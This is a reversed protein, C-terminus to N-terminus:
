KKSDKYFLYLMGIFGIFFGIILFLPSKQFHKDLKYGLFCFIALVGCFEVGASMWRMAGHHHWGDKEPKDAEM